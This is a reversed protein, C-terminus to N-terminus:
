RDTAATLQEVLAALRRPDGALLRETRTALAETTGAIRRAVSDPTGLTVGLTGPDVLSAYVLLSGEGRPLARLSGELRRAYRATVFTWRAHWTDGDRALRVVVTYRENPGAVEYEYFVRFVNAAERALVRSEVLEPVWSSQAAFDAYVAMIAVPAAASRRYTIVEPWPYGDVARRQVVTAGHDVRRLDEDSLSPPAAAGAAAASLAVVALAARWTM